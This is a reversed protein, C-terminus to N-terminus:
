CSRCPVQLNDAQKRKQVKRFFTQRCLHMKQPIKCLIQDAQLFRQKRYSIVEKFENDFLVFRIGTLTYFSMMLDRIQEVDFRLM